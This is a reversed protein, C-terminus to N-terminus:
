FNKLKETVKIMIYLIVFFAGGLIGQQFPAANRNILLTMSLM